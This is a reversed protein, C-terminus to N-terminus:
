VLQWAMPRYAGAGFKEEVIDDLSNAPFFQRDTNEPKLRWCFESLSFESFIPKPIDHFNHCTPRFLRILSPLLGFPDEDSVDHM